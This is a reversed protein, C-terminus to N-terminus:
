RIFAEEIFQRSFSPNIWEVKTEANQFVLTAALHQLPQTCQGLPLGPWRRRGNLITRNCTATANGITVVMVLECIDCSHALYLHVAFAPLYFCGPEIDGVVQTLHDVRVSQDILDFAIHAM